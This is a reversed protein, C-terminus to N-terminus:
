FQFWSKTPLVNSGGTAKIIGIKGQEFDLKGMEDVTVIELIGNGKFDVGGYVLTKVGEDNIAEKFTIGVCGPQNLIMAIEEKSISFAHSAEAGMKDHHNKVMKAAQELSIEEGIEQSIMQEKTILEQNMILTKINKAEIRV